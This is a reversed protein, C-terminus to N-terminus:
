KYKVTLKEDGIRVESMRLLSWQGCSGSCDGVDEFKTPPRKEAQSSILQLEGKKSPPFRM